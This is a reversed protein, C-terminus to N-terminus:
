NEAQVSFLTADRFYFRLLVTRGSLAATTMEGWQLPIHQSDTDVIRCKEKEYGPIVQGTEDCVEVMIYAQRQYDPHKEPHWRAAANLSLATPPAVFVHTDVVSNLTSKLGTIRHLPISFAASQLLIHKNNYVVPAHRLRNLRSDGTLDLERFPRKWTRMDAPNGVTWLEVYGQPGHKPSTPNRKECTRNQNPNVAQPSTAYVQVAALYRNGYPFVQASYFQLDPSDIEDPTFLEQAPRQQGKRSVDVPPKWQSGDASTRVSLVRRIGGFHDASGAVPQYPQYTIQWNVYQGAQPYWIVGGMDHDYYAPREDHLHIWQVGDSSRFYHIGNASRTEGKQFKAAAMLLYENTDERRTLSRFGLWSQEAPLSLVAQSGSYHIFDATLYRYLVPTHEKPDYAFVEYDPLRPFVGITIKGAPGSLGPEEALASFVLKPKGWVVSYDTEEMFVCVPEGAAASGYSLFWLMLLIMGQVAAQYASRKEAPTFALFINM